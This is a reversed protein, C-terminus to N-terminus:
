WFQWWPKKNGPAEIVKQNILTQIHIAQAHVTESLKGIQNDKVGLQENQKQLDTIRTDKENLLRELGAFTAQSTSFDLAFKQITKDKEDLM